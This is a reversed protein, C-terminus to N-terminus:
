RLHELMEARTLPLEIETADDAIEIGIPKTPGSGSGQSGEYRMISWDVHWKGGRPVLLDISRTAPDIHFSLTGPARDMEPLSWFDPPAVAEELAMDWGKAEGAPTLTVALFYPPRPLAFEGPV